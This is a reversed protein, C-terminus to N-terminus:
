RVPLLHNPSLSKVPSVIVAGFKGTLNFGFEMEIENPKISLGHLQTIATETASRITSMTQKFSTQADTIVASAQSSARQTTGSEPEDGIVLISQGDELEFRVLHKM